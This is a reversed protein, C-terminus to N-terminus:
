PHFNTLINNILLSVGGLPGLNTRLDPPSNKLSDVLAANIIKHM